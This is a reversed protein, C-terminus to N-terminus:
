NWHSPSDRVNSVVQYFKFLYRSILFFRQFEDISNELRIQIEQVDDFSSRPVCRVNESTSAALALRVELLQVAAFFEPAILSLEESQHRNEQKQQSAEVCCVGFIV